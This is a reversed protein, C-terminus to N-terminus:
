EDDDDNQEDDATEYSRLFGIQRVQPNTEYVVCARNGETRVGVITTDPPIDIWIEQIM